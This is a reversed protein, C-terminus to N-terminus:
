SRDNSRVWNVANIYDILDGDVSLMPATTMGMEIMKEIDDLLEYEIQGKDLLQKLVSCKPCNTITYLVIKKM